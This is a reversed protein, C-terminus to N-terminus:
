YIDNTVIIEINQLRAIKKESGGSIKSLNDRWNRDVHWTCLLRHEAPGMVAVWANYFAPADDSM